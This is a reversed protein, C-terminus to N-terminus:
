IVIVATVWENKEEAEKGGSVHCTDVSDVRPSVCSFVSYVADVDCVMMFSLFLRHLFMLGPQSM